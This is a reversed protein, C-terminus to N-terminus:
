DCIGWDGGYEGIVNPNPDDKFEGAMRGVLVGSPYDYIYAWWVGKGPPSTIQWNGSITYDPTTGFSSLIGSLTGQGPSTEVVKADMFYAFTGNALYVRGSAKGRTVSTPLNWDGKIYGSRCTYCASTVFANCTSNCSLSGGSFGQSICTQGGLDAGDCTEGAELVGNGCVPGDVSLNLQYLQASNTAGGHVRVFYTGAGSPLPIGTLTEGQGAPNLDASALLTAGDTDLIEIGLNHVTLSNFSTGAPCSSGSQPGQNYTFGVPTVSVTATNHAAVSLSYFNTDADDDVSVNQIQLAGGPAFAGLGTATGSTDNHEFTDGYHRQAGLIDDHRPGDFALSLFPEMLKTQNVPCVHSLGMGHGHEHAVTNRLRLSNGSTNNYTTDATDIVMDGFNPFFNYALVNSPGDIPHGGIRVDGRVGLVGPALSSQLWPAGDDNPEYVYTIGTLESWRDFVQQFLAQWVAQSGYIGNLFARLNSPSTPEQSYGFISTGDPVISWTLITPDGQTLGAGNTATVSWR